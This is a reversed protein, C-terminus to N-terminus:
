AGGRTEWWLSCLNTLCRFRLIKPRNAFLTAHSSEHPIKRIQLKSSTCPPRTGHKPMGRHCAPMRATSRQGSVLRCEEERWVPLQPPPPTHWVHPAGQSRFLEGVGGVSEAVLQWHSMGQHAQARRTSRLSHSQTAQSCLSAACHRFDRSRCVPADALTM